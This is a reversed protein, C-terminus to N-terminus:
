KSTDGALWVEAEALHDPEFSRIEIGPFLAGEVVAAKRLWNMDSIVACKDFKPLLGFLKPLRGLEVALASFTPMSFDSIVYCMKGNQVGDSAEILADLGARMEEADLRGDLDIDVRDASRKTIKLM